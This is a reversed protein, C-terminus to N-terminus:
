GTHREGRLKTLEAQHRQHERFLEVFNVRDSIGVKAITYSTIREFTESIDTGYYLQLAKFKNAAGQSIMMPKLGVLERETFPNPLLDSPAAEGKPKPLDYVSPRGEVKRFKGRDVGKELYVRAWTPSKDFAAGVRKASMAGKEALLKGIGDLRMEVDRENM